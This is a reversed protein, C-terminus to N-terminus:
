PSTLKLEPSNDGPKVDITLGSTEPSTYRKPVLSPGSGSEPGANAPTEFAVIAVRHVGVTAGDNQGFTRLEFSGDPQIKANAGRGASPMTAIMGKTLPKGDLLVKGRVPVVNSKQQCGVVALMLLGLLMPGRHGREAKLRKMKAGPSVLSDQM